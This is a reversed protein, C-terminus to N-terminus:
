NTVGDGRDNTMNIVEAARISFPDDNWAFYNPRRDEMGYMRCGGFDDVKSYQGVHFSSSSMKM